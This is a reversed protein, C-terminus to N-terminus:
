NQFLFHLTNSEFALSIFHVEL